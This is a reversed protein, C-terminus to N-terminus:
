DQEVINTNVYSKQIVKQIGLQETPNIIVPGAINASLEAGEGSKVENKSLIMFIGLEGAQRAKLIDLEDDSLLIQYSLGYQEPDVITFTIQPNECSELWYASLGNEQKHYVVYTTYKEFGPIGLPFTLIKDTRIPRNSRTSKDASM